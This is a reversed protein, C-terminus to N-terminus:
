QRTGFLLHDPNVCARNKCTHRTDWEGRMDLEDCCAVIFRAVRMKSRGVGIQPRGNDGHNGSLVICGGDTVREFRAAIRDLVDRYDSHVELTALQDALVNM